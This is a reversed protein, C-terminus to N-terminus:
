PPSWCPTNISGAVPAGRLELFDVLREDPDRRPADPSRNELLHHVRRPRITNSTIWGTRVTPQNDDHATGGHSTFILPGSSGSPRLGSVWVAEWSGSTTRCRYYRYVKMGHRCNHPTLIGWPQSRVGTSWVEFQLKRWSRLCAWINPIRTIDMPALALSLFYLLHSGPM